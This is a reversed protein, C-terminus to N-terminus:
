SGEVRRLERARRQLHRFYDSDTIEAVRRARKVEDIQIHLAQIQQRMAEQRMSVELAAGALSALAEVVPHFGPDFPIIEKTERDIANLLQLVGIVHEGANRLPVALFSRSRYGTRRDFAITGAFEFGDAAYADPVNV